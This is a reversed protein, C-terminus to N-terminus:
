AIGGLELNGALDHEVVAALHRQGITGVVRDDTISRRRRKGIEIGDGARARDAVAIQRQDVAADDIGVPGLRQDDVGADIGDGRGPQHATDENGVIDTTEQFSGCAVRQLDVIVDQVVPQDLGARRVAERGCHQVDRATHRPSSRDIKEVVRHELDTTRNGGPLGGAETRKAPRHHRRSHQDEVIGPIEM